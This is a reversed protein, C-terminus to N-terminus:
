FLGKTSELSLGLKTAPRIYNVMLKPNRRLFLVRRASTAHAIWFLAASLYCISVSHSLCHILSFPDVYDFFPPLSSDTPPVCSCSSLRFINQLEFYNAYILDIFRSFLADHPWFRANLPLSIVRYTLRTQLYNPATVRDKDIKGM